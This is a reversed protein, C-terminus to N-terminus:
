NSNSRRRKKYIIIVSTLALGSLVLWIAMQADDGTKTSGAVNQTTALSPKVTPKPTATPGPTVTPAPTAAPAPIATPIPTPTAEPTAVTLTQEEDEIDKHEAVLIEEGAIVEYLEEFAVITEGVMNSTDLTFPVEIMGSTAKATFEVESVATIIEKTKYNVFHGKVIYATGVKLNSYHVEDVAGVKDGIELVKGGDMTLAKTGIEPVLEVVTLTQGKDEIDKHEAVLVEKGGVIEYLEEMAVIAKGALKTTNIVFPVNVAGSTEKPTFDLTVVETVAINSEYDVFYGKLRYKADVKLNTYAVEDVAQVVEGLELVKGGTGNLARTAISPTPEVVTLTQGRDELDKHEAVLVEKGDRVEYLEEFAVIVKGAMGSTNITFPVTIVGNTTKPTFDVEVVETLAEATERDVFYGKVRYHANVKVNSYMVEDIAEVTEGIELIKGGNVNLARTGISPPITEDIDDTLTGLNVVSFPMHADFTFDLLVLGKNAECPLEQVRYQGYLLAGKSDDVLASDGFWIGNKWADDDYEYKLEHSADRDNANTNFSHKTWNVGDGSTSGEPMAKWGSVTSFEGNPDTVVIHSEGTDVHTLRFPINALRNLSGIERDNGLDLDNTSSAVERDGSLGLIDSVSALLTKKQGDEIKIGRVDARIPDNFFAKEETLEEIKEHTRIEFEVTTVSDESQWLYGKAEIIENAVYSGYPLWKNNSTWEGLESLKITAIVDGVNYWKQGEGTPEGNIDLEEVLVKEDSNNVIEITIAFNGSGQIEHLRTEADSKWLTVGGYITPNELAGVNVIAKEERIQFSQVLIGELLMGTAPSIERAEYSGYPIWEDPSQWTGNNPDLRVLGIVANPEVKTGKPLTITKTFDNPDLMTVAVDTTIPNVSKNTLQIVADLRADGQNASTQTEKSNKKLILGGYITPEPDVPIKYVSTIEGDYDATINILYIENSLLYGVPAKTERITVTGLPFTRRYGNDIYFDDGSVKKATSFDIKGDEDTALVWTRLPTKGVTEAVTAYQADYYEFTYEADKFEGDGQPYAEGTVKDIKELALRIPDSAPVNEWEFEEAKNPVLTVVQPTSDKVFGPPSKTEVITYTGPLLTLTETDGEGDTVLVADKGDITKAIERTAYDKYITFEAGALSYCSNGDSISPNSSVKKIKAYAPSVKNVVGGQATEAGIYAHRTADVEYDAPKSPSYMVRGNVTATFAYVQTNLEYLGSRIAPSNPDEKIYYLVNEAWLPGITTDRGTMRISTANNFNENDALLWGFDGWELGNDQPTHGDINFVKRARVETTIYQNFIPYTVNTGESNDYSYLKGDAEYGRTVYSEGKEDTQRGTIISWYYLGNNSGDPNTKTSNLNFWGMNSGAPTGVEVVLYIDKSHLGINIWPTNRSNSQVGISREFDWYLTNPNVDQINPKNNPITLFATANLIEDLASVMNNEYFAWFKAETDLADTKLNDFIRKLGADNLKYVRFTHGQRNTGDDFKTYSNGLIDRTHGEVSEGHYRKTIRLKGDPTDEIESFQFFGEQSQGRASANRSWMRFTYITEGSKNTNAGICEIYADNNDLGTHYTGDTTGTCRYNIQNGSRIGYSTFQAISRDITVGSLASEIQNFTPRTTTWLGNGWNPSFDGTLSSRGEMAASVQSPVKGVWTFPINRIIGRKGVTLGTTAFTQIQAGTFDISITGEDVKSLDVEWIKFGGMGDFSKIEKSTAGKPLKFDKFISAEGEGFAEIWIKNGITALELEKSSNRVLEYDGTTHSKGGYSVIVNTTGISKITIKGDNTDATEEKIEERTEESIEKKTGEQIERPEEEQTEEEQTEEKQQEEQPERTTENQPEEQIEEQIEEQAEKPVEGQVNEQIEKQTEEVEKTEEQMEVVVPEESNGVDIGSGDGIFSLASVNIAGGLVMAMVLVFSVLRTFTNGKKM